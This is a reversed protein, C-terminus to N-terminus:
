RAPANALRYRGSRRRRCHSPEPPGWPLPRGTWSVAPKATFRSFSGWRSSLEADEGCAQGVYDDWQRRRCSASPTFFYRLKNCTLTMRTGETRIPSPTFFYGAKQLDAPM